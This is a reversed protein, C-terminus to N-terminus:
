IAFLKDSRLEKFVARLDLLPQEITPSFVLIDDLYIMWNYTMCHMLDSFTLNMLRQFTAPVNCLGILM